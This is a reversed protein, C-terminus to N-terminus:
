KLKRIMMTAALYPQILKVEFFHFFFAQINMLMQIYRKMLKSMMFDPSASFTSSIVVVILFRLLRLVLAM